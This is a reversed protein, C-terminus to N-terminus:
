RGHKVFTAPSRAYHLGLKPLSLSTALLLLTEWRVQKLSSTDGLMYGEFRRLWPPPMEPPCYGKLISGFYNGTNGLTKEVRYRLPYELRYALRVERPLETSPIRQLWAVAATWCAEAKLWYGSCAKEESHLYIVQWTKRQHLIRSLAKRACWQIEWNSM